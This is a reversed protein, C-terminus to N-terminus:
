EAGRRRRLRMMALLLFTLALPAAPTAPNTGGAACGSEPEEGAPL